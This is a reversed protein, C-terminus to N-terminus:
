EDFELKKRMIKYKETKDGIVYGFTVNGSIYMSRIGIPVFNTLVGYDVDGKRYRVHNYENFTSTYTEKFNSYGGYYGTGLNTQFLFSRGLTFQFGTSVGLSFASVNISGYHYLYNNEFSEIYYGNRIAYQNIAIDARIFFGKLPHAYYTGRIKGEGGIIFKLGYKIGIGQYDDKDNYYNSSKNNFLPRKILSIYMESNCGSTHFREFGITFKDFLPAFLDVKVANKLRVYKNKSPDNYELMSEETGNAFVLKKIHYKKLSYVPGDVNTLKRYEVETETIRTVKCIIKMNEAFHITDQANTSNTTLAFLVFLLTAKFKNKM